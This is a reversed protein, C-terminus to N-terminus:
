ILFLNSSFGHLLSTFCGRRWSLASCCTVGVESAQAHATYLAADALTAKGMYLGDSTRAWSQDGTSSGKVSIGRRVSMSHGECASASWTLTSACPVCCTRGIHTVLCPCPELLGKTRVRGALFLVGLYIHMCVAWEPVLASDVDFPSKKHSPPHVSLAPHTCM